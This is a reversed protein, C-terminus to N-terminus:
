RYSKTNEMQKQIVYPVSNFPINNSTMNQRGHGGLRTFTRCEICFFWYDPDDSLCRAWHQVCGHTHKLSKLLSM